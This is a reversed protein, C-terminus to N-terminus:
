NEKRRLIEKEFENCFKSIFKIVNIQVGFEKKISTAINKIEETFTDKETNIGIGVVIYKCQEKITKTQTLIGGLKKGKYMIDNPLKIELTIGYETKFIDLIIQAIKVTIYNLKRINCNLQIFLSFAINNTEDTYWKKGQTGIGNTQIDAMVVTGNKINNNKILRFIEAQTSDIIKNFIFNKGLFNTTLNILQM